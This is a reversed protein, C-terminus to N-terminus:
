IATTPNAPDAADPIEALAQHLEVARRESRRILAINYLYAPLPLAQGLIGVPDRRLIFYALLIVTGVSSMTWFDRPVISKRARESVIWQVFFRSTFTFSGAFGLTLALWAPVAVHTFPLLFVAPKATDAVAHTHPALLGSVFFVGALATLAALFKALPHTTGDGRQERLILHINRVYIVTMLVQQLMGVPDYRVFFYFALMIGAALSLHWFAPPTYSEGRKKSALFQAVIRLSFLAQAALGFVSLLLANIPAGLLPIVYSTPATAPTMSKG